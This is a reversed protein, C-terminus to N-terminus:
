INIYDEKITSFFSALNRKAQYRNKTLLMLSNCLLFTALVMLGAEWVKLSGLFVLFGIVVLTVLSKWVVRFAKKM